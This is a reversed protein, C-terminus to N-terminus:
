IGITLFLMSLPEPVLQPALRRGIAPSACANAIVGLREARAPLLPLVLRMRPFQRDVIKQSSALPNHVPNSVIIADIKGSQDRLHIGLFGFGLLLGSGGQLVPDSR